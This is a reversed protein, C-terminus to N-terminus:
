DEMVKEKRGKLERKRRMIERKQEEGKFKVLLMEGKKGEEEGLKKVEEMEAKVGTKIMNLLDEVAERRRGNKVEVGKIIINRRKEERKGIETKREIEM